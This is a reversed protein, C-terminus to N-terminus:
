LVGPYCHSPFFEDGSPLPKPGCVPNQKFSRKSTAERLRGTAISPGREAFGKQSRSRYAWRPRAALKGACM